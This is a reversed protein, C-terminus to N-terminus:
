NENIYNDKIQISTCDQVYEYSVNPHYAIECSRFTNKLSPTRQEPEPKATTAPSLNSGELDVGPKITVM